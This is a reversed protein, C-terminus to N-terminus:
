CEGELALPPSLCKMNTSKMIHGLFGKEDQIVTNVAVKNEWEFEAWMTRFAVDACTAPSIYDMIDIHVNNLAQSMESSFLQLRMSLNERICSRNLQLDSQWQGKNAQEIRTSTHLKASTGCTQPRGHNGVGLVSKPPDGKRSKLHYFHAHTIQAKAKFGEAERFQKDALMKGFSLRCSQLWIKGVDDGTNCLLTGDALIAPRRSSVTMFNAQEGEETPTYFPLEGLCQKITAIGSEHDIEALPLCYEGIIWLACSCVYAARIQYFTDLLWRRCDHVALLDKVTITPVPFSRSSTQNNSPTSTQGPDFLHVLEWSIGGAMAMEDNDYVGVGFESPELIFKALYLSPTPPPNIPLINAACNTPIGVFGAENAEGCSIGLM